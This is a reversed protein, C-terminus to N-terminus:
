PCAINPQILARGSVAVDVLAGKNVVNQADCLKIQMPAGALPTCASAVVNLNARGSGSYCVVDGVGSVISVTVKSANACDNGNTAANGTIVRADGALTPATETPSVAPVWVFAGFAWNSVGACAAPDVRVYVNRKVAETRATNMAALLDNATSSINSRIFYTRFSPLAFAALIAGIIVTIMLELLSFGSSTRAKM